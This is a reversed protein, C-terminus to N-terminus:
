ACRPAARGVYQALPGYRATAAGSDVMRAQDRAEIALGELDGSRPDADHDFPEKESPGGM